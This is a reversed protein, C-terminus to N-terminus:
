TASHALGHRTASTSELSFHYAFPVGRQVATHMVTYFDTLRDGRSVAIGGVSSPIETGGGKKVTGIRYALHNMMGYDALRQLFSFESDMQSLSAVSVWPADYADRHQQPHSLLLSHIYADVGEWPSPSTPLPSPSVRGSRHYGTDSAPNYNFHQPLHHVTSLSSLSSSPSILFPIRCPVRGDSPVSTEVGVGTRSELDTDATALGMDSQM